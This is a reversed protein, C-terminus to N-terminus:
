FNNGIDKRISDLFLVVGSLTDAEHTAGSTALAVIQARYFKVIRELADQLIDAELFEQSRSSLSGTVNRSQFLAQWFVGNAFTPM